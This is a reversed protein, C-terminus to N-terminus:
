ISKKFYKYGEESKIKVYKLGDDGIESVITNEPYDEKIRLDIQDTLRVTDHFRAKIKQKIINFQNDFQSRQKTPLETIKSKLVTMDLESDFPLYNGIANDIFDQM